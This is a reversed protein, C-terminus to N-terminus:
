PAEWERSKADWPDAPAPAGRTWSRVLYVATWVLGAACIFAGVSMVRQLDTYEPLYTWYRRPMGEHGLVLAAVGHATAGAWVLLAGVRGADEDYMRGTLRPWWHHLGGLMSLVVVLMRLHYDGIVFYTDDLQAESLAGLVAGSMGALVLSVIAGAAYLLPTTAGRGGRVLPLAWAGVLLVAAVRGLQRAVNAALPDLSWVPVAVVALIVLAAIVFRRSALGHAHVELIECVIGLAPVLALGAIAALVGHMLMGLMLPDRVMVVVGLGILMVVSVLTAWAGALSAWTFLPLGRWQMEAARGRHITRLLELATLGASLALGAAGLRVSWAPGEPSFDPARHVASVLGCVAVVFLYLSAVGFWPRGGRRAGVQLPVVFNGLTAPIAPLAFVLGLLLGHLTFAYNFAEGSLLGPEPDLLEGRLVLAMAGGGFFCLLLAGLFCLALRRPDRPILWDRLETFGTM